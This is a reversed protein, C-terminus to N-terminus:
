NLIERSRKQLHLQLHLHLKLLGGGGAPGSGGSGAAAEAQAEEEEEELVEAAEELDTLDSPVVSVLLSLLTKIRQLTEVSDVRYIHFTYFPHKGFIAIDIGPNDVQTVERIEPNVMTFKTMDALFVAVREKAVEETVHFEEKFYKEMDSLQREGRLRKCILSGSCISLNEVRLESIM